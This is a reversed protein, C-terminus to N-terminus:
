PSGFHPFWRRDQNSFGLGRVFSVPVPEFTWMMGRSFDDALLWFTAWLWFLTFSFNATKSVMGERVANPLWISIIKSAVIQIAIGVPQLAFFAFANIPRTDGLLTYSGCAHFLGSLAFAISIRVVSRLAKRESRTRSPCLLGFAADGVSSFHPRFIQHWTQGWFGRLGRSYTVKFSGYLPPFMYGEANVGLVHRGLVVMQFLAWASYYFGIAIPVGIGPILMRYTHLMIPSLHELHPPPPCSINGLFHPDAIMTCKVVDLALYSCIFNVLHHRTANWKTIWDLDNMITRTLQNQKPPIWDWKLARLCALLDIIWCLRNWPENPAGGLISKTERLDSNRPKNDPQRQPRPTFTVRHIQRPDRILLFNFAFVTIMFGNLGVGLSGVAGPSRYRISSWLSSLLTAAFFALRALRSQRPSCSLTVYLGVILFGANSFAWLNTPRYTGNSLAADYEIQLQHLADAYSRSVHGSDETM